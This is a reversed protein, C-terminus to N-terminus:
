KKGEELRQELRQRLDELEQKLRDLEHRLDDSERQVIRKRVAPGEGSPAGPREVWTSGPEDLTAEITRPAGHRVVRLAVKGEKGRLAEVLDVSNTVAKDDVRTIVDGPLLGAKEAPRDKLVELVLAGKGDKLGFYEGLVPSLPEVRVGLRGRGAMLMFAGPDVDRLNKMGGLGGGPRRIVIRKEPSQPAQPLRPAAPPEPSEPEESEIRGPEEEAARSGVTVDLTRYDDDRFVQVSMRQGVRAEGVMGSLEAPGDVLRGNLRVIIDDRRLGAKEAPSDAVVRSVIVGGPGDYGLGERLDDSMEQMYVGLWPKPQTDAARAIGTGAIGVVLLLGAILAFQAVRAAKQRM